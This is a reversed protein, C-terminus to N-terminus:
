DKIVIPQNYSTVSSEFFGIKSFSDDNEVNILKTLYQLKNEVNKYLPKLGMMIMRKNCLFKIFSNM